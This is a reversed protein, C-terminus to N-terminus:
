KAVRGVVSGNRRAAPVQAIPHSHGSRQAERRAERDALDLLLVTAEPLKRFCGARIQSSCNTRRRDSLHALCRIRSNFVTRCVPCIGDANVYFRFINLQKHKTRQHSELAKSTAFSPRTGDEQPTCTHCIYQYNGPVCSGKSLKDNCSHTFFIAEVAKAWTSGDAFMTLWDHLDADMDPLINNHFGVSNRLITLDSLLQTVWPLPQEKSRMTLLLFLAQNPHKCVRRLYRVRARVLLCDM